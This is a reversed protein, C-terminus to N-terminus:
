GTIKWFQAPSTRFHYNVHSLSCDVTLGSIQMDRHGVQVESIEDLSGSLLPIPLNQIKCALLLNHRALRQQELATEATMVERQLKALERLSPSFKPM